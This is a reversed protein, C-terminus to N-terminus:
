GHRGAHGVAAVHFLLRIAADATVVGKVDVLANKARVAVFEL